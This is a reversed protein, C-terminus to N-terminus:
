TWLRRRKRDVWYARRWVSFSAAALLSEFILASTYFENLHGDLVVGIIRSALVLGMTLLTLLLGGRIRDASSSSWILFAGMGIQFGGYTARVDTAVAPALSGFNAPGTLPGPALLYAIGFGVSM